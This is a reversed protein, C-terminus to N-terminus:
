FGLLISRHPHHLLIDLRRNQHMSSLEVDALEGHNSGVAADVHVLIAVHPRAAGLVVHVVQVDLCDVEGVVRHLLHELRISLVLVGVLKVKPLELARQVGVVGLALLAFNVEVVLHPRGHHARHLVYEGGREVAQVGVSWFALFVAKLKKPQVKHQVLSPRGHEYLHVGARCQESVSPAERLHHGLHHLLAHLLTHVRHEGWRRICWGLSRADM